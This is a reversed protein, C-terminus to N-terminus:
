KGNYKRGIEEIAAETQDKDPAKGHWLSVNELFSVGKGKITDAIVCLPRGNNRERVDKFCNRIDDLCHGNIERVEYGFSKMKDKISELHVINETYDTICLKNRDIIVILNDLRKSSVFMLTEWISGEYLEGDGVICFVLHDRNNIKAGLAIGAAFGLGIGLSGGCFDVGKMGLKTHIGISSGDGGFSQISDIFGLDKLIPYTILSGHNKSMIFRDRNDWCSDFPKINMIEYYLVCILEACSFASTIHASGVGSCMRLCEIKISDVKNKNIVM